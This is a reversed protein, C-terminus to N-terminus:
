SQWLLSVDLVTVKLETHYFDTVQRMNPLPSNYMSYMVAASLLCLMGLLLVILACICAEFSRCIM